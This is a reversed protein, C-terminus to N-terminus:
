IQVRRFFIEPYYSKDNQFVSDIPIITHTMCLSKELQLENGRFDTEIVNGHSMM